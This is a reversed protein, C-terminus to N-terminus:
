SFLEHAGNCTHVGRAQRGRTLRGNCREEPLPRITVCITGTQRAGDSPPVPAGKPSTVGSVSAVGASSPAAGSERVNADRLRSGQESSAPASAGPLITEVEVLAQGGGLLRLKYAATYSLDILRDSHFPGRDNIRVTVSKGDNLNTVKVLTNHPFSRHAATLAYMDFTEGFATGKGHFKESYLSVEHVEDRLAKDLGRMLDLLEEESVYVTGDPLVTFPYRELLTFLDERSMEDIDKGEAEVSRTRFLWLLADELALPDDPRFTEEDELLGRHKAYTIERSGVSGLLVDTYPQERADGTSRSISSWIQLFGDRRTVPEAAVASPYAAALVSAIAVASFLVRMCVNYSAQVRFALTDLAECAFM